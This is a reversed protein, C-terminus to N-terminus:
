KAKAKLNKYSLSLQTSAAQQGKQQKNTSTTKNAQRGPNIELIEPNYELIKSIIEDVYERLRKSIQQETKLKEM